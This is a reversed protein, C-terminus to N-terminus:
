DTAEELRKELSEILKNYIIHLTDRMESSLCRMLRTTNRYRIPLIEECLEIGKGALSIIVSRRDKPHASRSLYGKQELSDLNSTMASRTLHIEEALQAPTLAKDQKHFLAELTEVQRPSLGCQKAVYTEVLMEIKRHLHFITLAKRLIEPDTDPLTKAYAVSREITAQRVM